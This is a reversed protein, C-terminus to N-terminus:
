APGPLRHALRQEILRQLDALCIKSLAPTDQLPYPYGLHRWKDEGLKHYPLLEVRTVPLGPWRDLFDALADIDGVQDNWGPVIVQRIWVQRAHQECARLFRHLNDAPRGTLWQFKDPDPSKIDLIVLDSQDLISPLIRSAEDDAPDADPWWGSTDLAVRIGAKKLEHLLAATFLPQFLPEGGSLTVGGDIGYYPQFRLVRKVLGAVDTQQGVDAPWSDPNHCYRCRLPCGQLFIVTRLGPGDVAGLTEISHFRGTLDSAKM